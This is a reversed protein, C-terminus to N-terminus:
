FPFYSEHFVLDRSYHIKKTVLNYVKYAKKAIPYGLFVCPQARPGSKAGGHKLTSMYCLCGFNRLHQYTPKTNFLMEYPTKFNLASNPLRNILYTATLACDGWFKIPAKSQFLLARAVELLHKHKREVM